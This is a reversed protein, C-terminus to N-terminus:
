RQEVVRFAYGLPTLLREGERKATAADPYSGSLVRYLTREPTFLPEIRATIKKAAL